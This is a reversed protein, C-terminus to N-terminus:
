HATWGGDVAYPYGTSGSGADSCLYILLGSLNDYTIFKKTPQEKLMVKDKVEDESMGRAKATDALQAEVLPTLTYGPCIANCTVGFEGTELAVTKTLGVVGHKAAIYASKFPSAILGHASAVNVIRGFGRKKMGPLVAKISHYNSNLNIDIIRNWTDDDYEDIPGVKQIGANNILIDVQGHAAEAGTILDRIEQPKLMDAGDYRVDVGYEGAIRSRNEEIEDRDGFGNLTIDVGMKALAEAFALGIGSTSGTIVAKRGRLDEFM